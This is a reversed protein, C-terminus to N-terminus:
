EPKEVMLQESVPDYLYRHGPPLSPLNVNNKKIIERMFEDHSKPGKFDHEFKYARIFEPIQVSFMIRERAAFYTAVPTAIIGEGYGRGKDGSGVDAKEITMGPKPTPSQPENSKKGTPQQGPNGAADTTVGAAAMAGAPPPPPPPLPKTQAAPKATDATQTQPPPNNTASNDSTSSSCGVIFSLLLAIPIIKCYM